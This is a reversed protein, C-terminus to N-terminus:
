HSEQPSILVIVAVQLALQLRRGRSESRKGQPRSAQPANRPPNCVHEGQQKEDDQDGTHVSLSFKSSEGNRFRVPQRKLFHQFIMSTQLNIKSVQTNSLIIFTLTETIEHSGNTAPHLHDAGEQGGARWDGGQERNSWIINYQACVRQRM